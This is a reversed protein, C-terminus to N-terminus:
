QHEPDEGHEPRTAAASTPETATGGVREVRYRPQRPTAGEPRGSTRGGGVSSGADVAFLLLELAHLIM